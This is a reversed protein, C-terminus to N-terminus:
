EEIFIRPVRSSITSLIEYNITGDIEAIDELTVNENDFVYVTDGVSVNDLSTVDVMCSDMCVSGIIPCRVGDIVVYGINTNTRRFGDAYGIPITAVKTKKSATFRRSYSVCEGENIEKLFTIKTKLRAIPEIDILDKVGTFSEYGYMIIGPRVLNTFDEKYNLLGNSASCHIYKLNFIDKLKNIAEKFNDIQYNTYDSNDDASSFHTYIGEVTINFNNKILEVVEDLEDIKVGTRNMGTEIELHVKTPSSISKIFKKDSVGVTINYKYIDELEDITPQNLVFIENNYGINRLEIAEDVVAVAVINFRDVIDLCKNIYTGYGNAKIVPMLEKNGVYERIKDINNLFKKKNIELVTARNSM